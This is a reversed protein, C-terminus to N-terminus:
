FSSATLWGVMCGAAARMFLGHTADPAFVMAALCVGFAAALGMGLSRQRGTWERSAVLASAAGFGVFCVLSAIVEVYDATTQPVAAATPFAAVPAGAVGSVALLRRGPTLRRPGAVRPVLAIASVFISTGLAIFAVAMLSGFAGVAYTSLDGSLLSVEPRLLHLAFVLGGFLWAGGLVM